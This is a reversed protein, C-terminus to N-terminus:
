HVGNTCKNQQAKLLLRYACLNDGQHFCEIAPQLGADAAIGALEIVKLGSLPGSM